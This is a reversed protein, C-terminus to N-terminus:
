SFEKGVLHTFQVPCNADLMRLFEAGTMTDGYENEVIVDETHAECAARVKDPETAWTFSSCGRVGSPKDGLPKAFGLEVAAPGARLGDEAVPTAGCGPCAGYFGDGWHICAEGGRCLTVRCDWCYLGAASRKGIHTPGSVSVTVDATEGTPLVFSPFQPRQVHWYFNTGM